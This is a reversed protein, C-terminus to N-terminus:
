EFSIIGENNQEKGVKAKKSSSENDRERDDDVKDVTTYRYLPEKSSFIRQM